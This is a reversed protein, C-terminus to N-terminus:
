DGEGNIDWGLRAGGVSHLVAGQGDYVLLTGQSFDLGLVQMDLQLRAPPMASPADLQEVAM